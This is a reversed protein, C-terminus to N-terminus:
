WFDVSGDSQEYKSIVHYSHSGLSSDELALSCCFVCRVEFKSHTKGQGAKKEAGSGM